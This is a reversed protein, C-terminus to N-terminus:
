IGADVRVAAERLREIIAPPNCTKRLREVPDEGKRVVWYSCMGQVDYAPPAECDGSYAVPCRPAACRPRPMWDFYGGLQDAIKQALLVLDHEDTLKPMHVFSRSRLPARWREANNFEYPWEDGMLAATRQRVVECWADFEADDDPRREAYPRNNFEAIERAEREDAAKRMQEAISDPLLDYFSRGGVLTGSDRLKAYRQRQADVMEPTVQAIATARAAARRKAEVQQEQEFAARDERELHKAEREDGGADIFFSIGPLRAGDRDASTRNYTVWKGIEAQEEVTREKDRNEIVTTLTDKHIECTAADCPETRDQAYYCKGDRHHQAAHTAINAEWGHVVEALYDRGVQAWSKLSREPQTLAIWRDRRGRDDPEDFEHEDVPECFVAWYGNPIGSGGEVGAPHFVWFTGFVPPLQSKYGHLAQTSELRQELPLKEAEKVLTILTIESDTMLTGKTHAAWM